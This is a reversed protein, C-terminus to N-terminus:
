SICLKSDFQNTPVKM